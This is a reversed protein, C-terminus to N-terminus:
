SLTSGTSVVNEVVLELEGRYIEVRGDFTYTKGEEIGPENGFYVAAIDGSEEELRFFVADEGNGLDRVTGTVRVTSGLDGESIEGVSATEPGLVASSVYVTTLGTLALLLSLRQLSDVGRM